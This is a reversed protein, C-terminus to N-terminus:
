LRWNWGYPPTEKGRGWVVRGKKCPTWGLIFLCKSKMEQSSGESMKDDIVIMKDSIQAYFIAPVSLISGAMDISLSPPSISINLGTLEALAGIYSAAMINGVESIASYNLEDLPAKEDFETGTLEGLMVHAFEKHLLFMIMGTLDGQMSLLIGVLLQEPGGFQEVAENYDLIKVVPLSRFLM